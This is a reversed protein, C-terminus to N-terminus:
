LKKRNMQYRILAKKLEDAGKTSLSSMVSSGVIMALDTESLLVKARKEQPRGPILSLLIYEKGQDEGNLPRDDFKYGLRKLELLRASYRVGGAKRMEIPKHWKMDMMLKLLKNRDRENIKAYDTSM